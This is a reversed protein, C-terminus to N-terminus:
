MPSWTELAARVRAVWWDLDAREQVRIAPDPNEVIDLAKNWGLFFLAAIVSLELARADFRDGSVERFDAIVDERTAAIRSASIRSRRRRDRLRLLSSHYASECDAGDFRQVLFRDM